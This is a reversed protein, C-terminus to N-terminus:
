HKFTVLRYIYYGLLGLLIATTAPNLYDQVKRYEEGLAYGAYALGGEWFLTGALTLPVFRVLPMAFIGAPIAVLTRVTPVLRGGFVLPTGCKRFLREAWEIDQVSLTTWRGHKASWAKLREGGLWRALAYWLLAGALSGISGALVVGVIALKGNAAEAGALPMIIESPIPPFVNELFMLLAIAPYGGEAVFDRIWDAM